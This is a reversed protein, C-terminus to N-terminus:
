RMLKEIDAIQEELRTGHLERDSIRVPLYYPEEHPLSLIYKQLGIERKKVAPVQTLNEANLPQGGSSRSAKGNAQSKTRSM